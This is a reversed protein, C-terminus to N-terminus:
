MGGTATCCRDKHGPNVIIGQDEVLAVAPSGPASDEVQKPETGWPDPPYCFTLPKFREERRPAVIESLQVSLDVARVTRESKMEKITEPTGEDLHNIRLNKISVDSNPGPRVKM